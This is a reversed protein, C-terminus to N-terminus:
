PQNTFFGKILRLKLASEEPMEIVLTANVATLQRKFIYVLQLCSTDLSSAQRLNLKFSKSRGHRLLKLLHLRFANENTITLEGSAKLEVLDKSECIEFSPENM